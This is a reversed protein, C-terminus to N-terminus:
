PNGDQSSLERGDWKPWSPPRTQPDDRWIEEITVRRKKTADYYCGFGLYGYRAPNHLHPNLPSM